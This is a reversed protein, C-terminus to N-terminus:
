QRWRRPMRAAASGSAVGDIEMEIMGPSDVAQAVNRARRRSRRPESPPSSTGIVAPVFMPPEPTPESMLPQRALRRWTFLQQPMLGHRRVVESVVAGRALTEEVIRAKPGSLVAATAGTGTIVEVRRV